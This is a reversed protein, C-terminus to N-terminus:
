TMYSGACSNYHIQLKHEVSYNGMLLPRPKPDQLPNKQEVAPEEMKEVAEGMRSTPDEM